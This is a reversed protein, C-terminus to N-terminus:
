SRGSSLAQIVVRWESTPYKEPQLQRAAEEVKCTAAQSEIKKKSKQDM